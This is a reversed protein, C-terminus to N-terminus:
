KEFSKEIVYGRGSGNGGGIGEGKGSVVLVPTALNEDFIPQFDRVQSDSSPIMEAVVYLNPRSGLNNILGLYTSTYSLVPYGSIGKPALETALYRTGKSDKTFFHLAVRSNTEPVALEWNIQKDDLNLVAQRVIPVNTIPHGERKMKWCSNRTSYSYSVRTEKPFYFLAKIFVASGVILSFIAFGIIHKKMM